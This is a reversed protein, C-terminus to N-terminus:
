ISGFLVAEEPLTSIPANLAYGSPYWGGSSAGESYWVIGNFLISSKPTWQLLYTSFYAFHSAIVNQICFITYHSQLM